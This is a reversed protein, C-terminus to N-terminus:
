CRRLSSKAKDSDNLLGYSILKDCLTELNELSPINYKKLLDAQQMGSRLDNALEKANIKKGNM